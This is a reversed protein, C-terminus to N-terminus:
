FVLKHTVPSLSSFVLCGGLLTEGKTDKLLCTRKFLTKSLRHVGPNVTMKRFMSVLCRSTGPGAGLVQLTQPVGFLRLGQEKRLVNTLLWTCSLAREWDGLLCASASLLGPSFSLTCYLLTDKFFPCPATFYPLGLFQCESLPFM